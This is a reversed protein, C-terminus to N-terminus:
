MENDWRVHNGSVSVPDVDCSRRSWRADRPDVYRRSERSTNWLRGKSIRVRKDPTGLNLNTSTAAADLLQFIRRWSGSPLKCRRWSLM